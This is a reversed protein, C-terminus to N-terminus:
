RLQLTVMDHCGWMKTKGSSQGYNELILVWSVPAVFPRCVKWSSSTQLACPVGTEGLSWSFPTEQRPAPLVGSHLRAKSRQTLWQILHLVISNCGSSSLCHGTKSYEQM